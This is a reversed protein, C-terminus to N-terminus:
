GAGGRRSRARIASQTSPESTNTTQISHSGIDIAEKRAAPVNIAVRQVEAALARAATSHGKSMMIAAAIPKALAISFVPAAAAIAWASTELADNPGTPVSATTYKAVTARVSTM